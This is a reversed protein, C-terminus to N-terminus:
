GPGKIVPGRGSTPAPRERFLPYGLSLSRISYRMRLRTALAPSLRRHNGESGGAKATSLNLAKLLRFSVVRGQRVL